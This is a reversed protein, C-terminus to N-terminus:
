VGKGVSNVCRGDVITISARIWSAAACHIHVIGYGLVFTETSVGVRSDRHLFQTIYGEELDGSPRPCCNCIVIM